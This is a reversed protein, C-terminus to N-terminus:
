DDLVYNSMGIPVWKRLPLIQDDTRTLPAITLAQEAPIDSAPNSMDVMTNKMGPRSLIFKFRERPLAKTFIDALQYDMLVFYLEVVGNEVQERIFHHRIDIHKPSLHKSTTQLCLSM